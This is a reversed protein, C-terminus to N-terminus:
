GLGGVHISDPVILSLGTGGTLGAWAGYVWRPWAAKIDFKQPTGAATSAAAWAKLDVDMARALGVALGCLVAYLKLNSM